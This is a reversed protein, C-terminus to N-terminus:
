HKVEEWDKRAIPKESKMVEDDPRPCEMPVRYFVSSDKDHNGPLVLNTRKCYYVKASNAGFDYKDKLECLACTKLM